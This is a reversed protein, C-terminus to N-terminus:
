SLVARFKAEPGHGSMRARGTNSLHRALHYVLDPKDSGTLEALEDAAFSRSDSELVALLETQLKLSSAAAKKGAEVGPQHYANVNILEAYIGVAREFLAILGALHSVVSTPNILCMTWLGRGFTLPFRRPDEGSHDGGPGTRM